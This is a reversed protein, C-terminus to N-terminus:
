GLDTVVAPHRPDDARVVVDAQYEPMVEDRYRGYAPLTWATEPPTRRALAADSQMLHVALDFDLGAGLLFVGSVVLVAHGPLTVYGARTARDTAPDWLSPLIRGTGGPGAPTLVERTLARQDLWDEYFADPNTKGREFRLSAARLFGGAPVHLVPVGADALATTLAATLAETGATPAGDVAVRAPHDGAAAVARDALGAALSDVTVPRAKM